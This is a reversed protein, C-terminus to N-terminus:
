QHCERQPNTRVSQGELSLGLPCAASGQWVKWVEPFYWRSERDCSNVRPECLLLAPPWCLHLSPAPMVNHSYALPPAFPLSQRSVGLRHVRVQNDQRRLIPKALTTPHARYLFLPPSKGYGQNDVSLTSITRLSLNGCIIKEDLAGTCLCVHPRVHENM